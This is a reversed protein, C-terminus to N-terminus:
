QSHSVRLSEKDGLEAGEGGKKVKEAYLAMSKKKGTVHGGVQIQRCMDTDKIRRSNERLNFFNPRRGLKGGIYKVFFSVRFIVM